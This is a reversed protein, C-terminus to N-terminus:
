FALRGTKKKEDQAAERKLLNQINEVFYIVVRYEPNGFRDPVWSYVMVDEEKEWYFSKGSEKERDAVAPQGYKQKLTELIGAEEKFEARILLPRNNFGSFLIEVYDFPMNKKYAYRYMLKVVDHEVREGQPENLRRNLEAVDPFNRELFRRFNIELNIESRGSIADSGLQNQLNKRLSGSYVTNRGIHFFTFTETNETNGAGEPGAPERDNGCGLLIAPFLILLFALDRFFRVGPRMGPCRITSYLHQM